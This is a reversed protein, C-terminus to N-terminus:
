SIIGHCGIVCMPICMTLSVGHPQPRATTQGGVFFGFALEVLWWSFFFSSVDAVTTIRDSCKMTLGGRWRFALLLLNFDFRRSSKTKNMCEIQDLYKIQQLSFVITAWLSNGLYLVVFLYEYFFLV